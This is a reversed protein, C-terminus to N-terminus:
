DEGIHKTEFLNSINLHEINKSSIVEALAVLYSALKDAAGEASDQGTTEIDVLTAVWGDAVRAFIVDSEFGTSRNLDGHFNITFQGDVINKLKVAKM